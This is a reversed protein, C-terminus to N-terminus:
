SMEMWISGPRIGALVGDDAEMVAASAAPSPLCTVIVDVDHALESPTDAWAAGGDLFPQAAGPDLDRVVLDVGNRLLSGALKGGVNGLGIFGVRM